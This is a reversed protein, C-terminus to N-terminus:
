NFPLSRGVRDFAHQFRMNFALSPGSDYASVNMRVADFAANNEARQARAADQSRTARRYPDVTPDTATPPSRPLVVAARRSSLSSDTTEVRFSDREGTFARM